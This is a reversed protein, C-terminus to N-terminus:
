CSHIYTFTFILDTGLDESGKETEMFCWAVFLTVVGGQIPYWDIVLNVGLIEDPKGLLEETGM